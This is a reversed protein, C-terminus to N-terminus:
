PNAGPHESAGPDRWPEVPPIPGSTPEPVSPPGPQSAVVPRPVPSPTPHADLQMLRRASSEHETRLM